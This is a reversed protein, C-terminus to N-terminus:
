VQALTRTDSFERDTDPLVAWLAGYPYDRRKAALGHEHHLKDRLHSKTGDAVVLLDFPGHQNGQADTVIVTGDDHTIAEVVDVGTHLAITGDGRSSALNSSGDGADSPAM